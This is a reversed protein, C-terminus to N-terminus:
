LESHGWQPSWTRWNSRLEQLQEWKRCVGKGRRIEKCKLFWVSFVCKALNYPLLPLFPFMAKKNSSSFLHDSLLFLGGASNVTCNKGRQDISLETPGVTIEPTFLAVAASPFTWYIIYFRNSYVWNYVTLLLQGCVANIRRLSLGFSPTIKDGCDM